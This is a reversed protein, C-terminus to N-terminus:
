SNKKFKNVMGKFQKFQNPFSLGASMENMQEFQKILRNVAAVDQCCGNAIRRRRSANLIKPNKREEKTMSRIIALQRPITKETTNLKSLADGGVSGLGPIAKLIKAFGGIKELSKLAKELGNLDFKKGFGLDKVEDVVGSDMVEEVLSIVDGKGLIRSAMRDPHFQEIDAIKEGTCLYKIQCNTIFKASLAAGGRADGDARTLILGTLNITENFTKATNIADQGMMSDIVLFTDSPNIIRKLESVELMMEEDVHLRGATDYIIVDHKNQSKLVKQVITIATDTVIDVDDFFDISNNKALLKLQEIAAPRHTDLSVLLVKKKFKTQLLNALKAATTTKGTGQLGVFLVDKLKRESFDDDTGLLNILEDHVAKIITQEPTVGKIAKQGVLKEKLNSSVSKVVELAVDAELLSVRIERITSDIVEETLIGRSRLTDVISLLKKSLSSFM